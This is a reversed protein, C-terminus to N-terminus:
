NKLIFFSVIYKEHLGACYQCLYKIQHIPNNPIKMIYVPRSKLKLKCLECHGIFLDFKVAIPMLSFIKTQLHHKERANKMIKLYEKEEKKLSYKTIL